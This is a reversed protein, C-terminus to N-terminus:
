ENSMMAKPTDLGLLRKLAVCDVDQQVQSVRWLRVHPRTARQQPPGQLRPRARHSACSAKGRACDNALGAGSLAAIADNALLVAGSDLRYALHGKTSAVAPLITTKQVLTATCRVALSTSNSCHLAAKIALGSRRGPRGGHEAGQILSELEDRQSWQRGNDGDDNDASRRESSPLCPLCYGFAPLATKSTFSAM